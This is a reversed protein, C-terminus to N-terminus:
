LKHLRLIRNMTIIMKEIVIYKENLWSRMRLIIEVTNYFAVYFLLIVLCLFYPSVAYNLLLLIGGPLWSRLCCFTM